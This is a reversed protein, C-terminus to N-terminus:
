PKCRDCLTFTEGTSLTYDRVNTMDECSDCFATTTNTRATTDNTTEM